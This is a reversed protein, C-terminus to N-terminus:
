QQQRWLIKIKFVTLSFELIEEKHPEDVWSKGPYIPRTRIHGDHTNESYFLGFANEMYMIIIIINIQTQLKHQVSFHVNQILINYVQVTLSLIFNVKEARMKHRHLLQNAISLRVIGYVM